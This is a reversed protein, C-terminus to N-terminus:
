DVEKKDGEIQIMLEEFRKAPVIYAMISSKKLVATIENQEVVKPLERVAKSVSINFKAYNREM